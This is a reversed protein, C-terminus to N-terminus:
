FLKLIENPNRVAELEYFVNKDQGDKNKVEGLHILVTGVKFRQEIKSIRLDLLTIKDKKFSVVKNESNGKIVVRLNTIFYAVKKYGILKKLLRILGEGIIILAIFYMANWSLDHKGVISIVIFVSWTFVFFGLTRLFDILMSLLYPKYEPRGQWLVQEGHVINFVLKSTTSIHMFIVTLPFPKANTPMQVILQIGEIFNVLHFVKETRM